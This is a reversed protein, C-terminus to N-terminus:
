HTGTVTLDDASSKSASFVTLLNHSRAFFFANPDNPDKTDIPVKTNYKWSGEGYSVGNIVIPQNGEPHRYRLKYATGEALIDAAAIIVSNNNSMANMNEKTPQEGFKVFVASSPLGYSFHWRQAQVNFDISSIREGPNKDQGYTSTSGIFTRNRGHLHMLQPTGFMYYNGTPIIATLPNGSLAALETTVKESQSYNRRAMESTWDLVYPYAYLESMPSQGDTAGFKNIIKYSNKVQMYVDVPTITKTKLDLHYYYMIIQVHDYYNGMTQISGYVNYGLRMPQLRLAAINNKEPSLPFGVPQIRLNPILGYTDFFNTGQGVLNGRIDYKSGIINNQLAEDVKRVVNPVIWENAAKPKKFFNAFRFDGTDELILNGIRGVLDVNAGKESSHRAALNSYRQKNSVTTNDQSTGNNAIARCYVTANTVESNSLSCYFEYISTDMPLSIEEGAKYMVNDYIVNFSFSIKKEKTWETTDMGNSYGKGTMSSTASIGWANNGEFNGLNPFYVYFPYDLNIFNGPSFTGMGPIPINAMNRHNADNGCAKYCIPDGVDYHQGFHHPETCNLVKTSSCGTKNYITVNDVTAGPTCLSADPHLPLEPKDTSTYILTGNKYYKVTNNEVAIKLIDGTAYTSVLGRGIGSEYIYLQGGPTLYLAYQIDTYSETQNLNTLGIMRQTTTENARTLMYGDNVVVGTSFAGADWANSANAAKSLSNGSATLGVINGWAADSNGATTCVHDNLPLNGCTWNGAVLACSSTHVHINNDSHTTVNTYCEPGHANSGSYHCDLVRYECDAPNGPCEGTQGLTPEGVTSTSTRQDKDSALPIVAAYESSVPNHVVIDNVKSHSDSYHSTFEQGNAGYRANYGTDYAATGSTDNTISSGSRIKNLIVEYFVSSTGTVYEGNPITNIIDIGSKLLRMPASPRAPRSQVNGHVNDFVTSISAGNGNGNYKSSPSLYNGNYSGINVPYTGWKAASNSNNDWMDEKTASVKPFNQQAHKTESDKIFYLVSQDGSSTQLILFDSVATVTNDLNRKTDFNKWEVTNKDKATAAKHTDETNGYGGNTYQDGDGYSTAQKDCHNTRVGEDWVVNDHQQTELSYKLRGDRSTDSAALNYFINPDGQVISAKIEDTGTIEQMGNVASQDLKWVRAKNIKLYDFTVNQTWTDTIAPLVHRCEPGCICDAPVTWTVTINFSGPGGPEATAMENQCPVAPSDVITNGKEDKHTVADKKECTKSATTTVPDTFSANVTAGWGTKTRTQGDSKATFSLPTANVDDAFKQAATLAADYASHDPDATCTANHLDTKATARNPIFGTWPPSTYSGGTHLDVSQGGLTQNPATDGAKYECDTGAYKVQYRRTAQGDKIYEWEMELMFESGGSAFYLDRTTPVGTMAEFTENGPSGEKIESWYVASTAIGGRIVEGGGVVGGDDPKKFYEVSDNNPNGDLPIEVYKGQGKLRVKVKVEATYTFKVPLTSYDKISDKYKLTTGKTLYDKLTKLPIQKYGGTAPYVNASDLPDNKINAGAPTRTINISLQPQEENNYDLFKNWDAINSKNGLEISISHEADFPAKSIPIKGDPKVDISFRGKVPPPSDKEYYLNVQIHRPMTNSFYLLQTWGSTIFNRNTEWTPHNYDNEGLVYYSTPSLKYGKLSAPPIDREYSFETDNTNFRIKTKNNLFNAIFKQNDDSYVYVMGENPPLKNPDSSHPPNLCEETEKNYENVIVKCQMPARYDLSKNMADKFDKQTAQTWTVVNLLKTLEDPSSLSFDKFPDYLGNKNLKFVKINAYGNLTYYAGDKDIEPFSAIRNWESRDIAGKTLSITHYQKCPKETGGKKQISKVVMGITQYKYPSDPPAPNYHVVEISMEKFIYSDDHIDKPKAHVYIVYKGIDKFPANYPANYEKGNVTVKDIDYSADTVDAKININGQNVQSYFFGSETYEDPGNKASSMTVTVNLQPNYHQITIVIDKNIISSGSKAQVHVTYEGYDSFQANNNNVTLYAGTGKCKITVPDIIYGEGPVDAEIKINGSGQKSYFFGSQTFVISQSTNNSVTVKVNLEPAPAATVINLSTLLLVLCLLVSLIIKKM